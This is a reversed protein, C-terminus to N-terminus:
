NTYKQECNKCAYLINYNELNACENTDKYKEQVNEVESFHNCGECLGLDDINIKKLLINIIKELEGIKNELKNIRYDYNM